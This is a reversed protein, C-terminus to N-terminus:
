TAARAVPVAAVENSAVAVSIAVVAMAAKSLVVPLLATESANTLSFEDTACTYCVPCSSRPRWVQLM